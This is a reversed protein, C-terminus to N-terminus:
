DAQRHFTVLETLGGGAWRLLRLAGDAEDIYLHYPLAGASLESMAEEASMSRLPLDLKRSGGDPGSGGGDSGRGNGPREPEGGYVAERSAAKQFGRAKERHRKLQKELKDVVLDLSSYMDESEQEASVKLGDSTLVVVARHRFKEVTFTIDADLVSDSYKELRSLKDLSYDTLRQSPEMHRFTVTHQM